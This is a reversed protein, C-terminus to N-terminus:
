APARYGKPVAAMLKRTYEHRPHDLIEEVGAQEVV